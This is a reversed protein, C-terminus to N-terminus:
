KPEFGVKFIHGFLEFGSNTTFVSISHFMIKIINIYIQREVGDPLYYINITPDQLLKDVCEAIKEYSIEDSRGKDFANEVERTMRKKLCKNEERLKKNEDLSKQLEMVLKKNQFELDGLRKNTEDLQLSLSSVSVKQAEVERELKKSNSRFM